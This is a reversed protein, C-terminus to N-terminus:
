HRHGLLAAHLRGAAALAPARQREAAPRPLPAGARVACVDGGHKRRRRGPQTTSNACINTFSAGGGALADARRRKSVDPRTARSTKGWGCLVTRNIDAGLVMAGFEACTYLMSGAGCFPDFVLAGPRACGMNAMILSLEPDMSTNGLLKREQLSFKHLLAARAGRGVVRGLVVARVHDAAEAASLTHRILAHASAPVHEVLAALTERPHSLDVAAALELPALAEMLARRFAPPVKVHRSEFDVRFTTSADCAIPALLAADAAQTAAVCTAIDAGAGWVEVAYMVCVCRALLAALQAGHLGRVVVYPSQTQPTSRAPPPEPLVVFPKRVLSEEPPETTLVAMGTAGVAVGASRIEALRFELFKHACVLVVATEGAARVTSCLDALSM